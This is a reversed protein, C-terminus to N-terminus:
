IGSNDLNRQPLYKASLEEKKQLRLAFLFALVLLGCCLLLASSIGGLHDTMWGGLGPGVLQGLAFYVTVYGLAVPAYSPHIRDFASSDILAHWRYRLGGSFNVSSLGSSYLSFFRFLCQRHGRLLLSSLHSGEGSKIPYREGMVSPQFISMLGGLAM